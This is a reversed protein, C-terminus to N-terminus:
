VRITCCKADERLQFLLKRVNRAFFLLNCSGGIISTAVMIAWYAAPTPVFSAVIFFGPLYVLLSVVVGSIFVARTDGVGRLAAQLINQVFEFAIRLMLMAIVPMGAAYFASKDFTTKDSLFWGLVPRGFVALLIIYALALAVALKVASKVTAVVDGIGSDGLRRGCLMEVGDCTGTVVANFPCNIAFVASSAAAPAADLKGLLSVLTFFSGYGVLTRGCLPIGFRLIDAAIRPRFRLVSGHRMAMRALPNRAASCFYALCIVSQAAIFSAGAGAIGMEPFPGLGFVLTPTLLLKVAVGLFTAFGVTETLGQGSFFGSAVAAVAALPGGALLIASLMCELGAIDAPHGFLGLIARACPIAAAFVVSSALALRLGNAAIAAARASKGGGHARALMTGCYGLVAVVLATVCGAFVNAPLAARLEAESHKALFFNDTFGNLATVVSAAVLPLSIRVVAGIGTGAPVTTKKGTKSM